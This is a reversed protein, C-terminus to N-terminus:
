RRDQEHLAATYMKEHKQRRFIYLLDHKKRHGSLGLWGVLPFFQLIWKVDSIQCLLLLSDSLFGLHREAAAHVAREHAHLDLVKQEKAATFTHSLGKLRLLFRPKDPGNQRGHAGLLKTNTLPLYDVGRELDGNQQFNRRMHAILVLEEELAEPSGCKIGCHTM